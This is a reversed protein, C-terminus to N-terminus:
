AEGGPLNNTTRLRSVIGEATIKGTRTGGQGELDSTAVWQDDTGDWSFEGCQVTFSNGVDPVVKIDEVTYKPKPEIDALTLNFHQAIPGWYLAKQRAIWEPTTHAHQSVNPHEQWFKVAHGLVQKVTERCFPSTSTSKSGSEIGYEDRLHRLVTTLTRRDLARDHQDSDWVALKHLVDRAVKGREDERVATDRATVMAALQSQCTEDRGLERMYFDEAFEEVTQIEAM